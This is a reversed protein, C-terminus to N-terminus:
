GVKRKRGGRGKDFEENFREAEAGAGTLKVIKQRAEELDEKVEAMRKSMTREEAEKDDLSKTLTEVEERQKNVILMNEDLAALITDIDLSPRLSSEDDTHHLEVAKQYLHIYATRVKETYCEKLQSLKAHSIYPPISKQVEDKDIFDFDDSDTDNPVPSSM